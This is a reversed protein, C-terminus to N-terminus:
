QYLVFQNNLKKIKLHHIAALVEVAEDATITTPLNSTYRTTKVKIDEATISIGFNKQMLFAMENFNLDNIVLTGERWVLMSENIPIIEYTQLEKNYVLEDAKQLIGLTDNDKTIGVKGTVVGVSMKRLGSYNSVNFSTGLVSITLGNSGIRFPKNIDRAVDFFVEGDVLDVRREESFDNYVHITTGANLTLKSGDSIAITRKEGNKTSIETFAPKDTKAPQNFLVVTTIIGAVVAAWAAVKFWRPMVRLRATVLAPSIRNWIEEQTAHREQDSLRIPQEDEMSSFWTEVAQNEPQSTKGLLYKKLIQRISKAEV